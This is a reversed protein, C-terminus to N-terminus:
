HTLGSINAGAYRANEEVLWRPLVGKEAYSVMEGRTWRPDDLFALTKTVNEIREVSRGEADLKALIACASVVVAPPVIVKPTDMGRQVISNLINRVNAVRLEFLGKARAHRAVVHRSGLGYDRAIAPM